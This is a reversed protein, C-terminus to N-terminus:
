LKKLVSLIEEAIEAPTKNTTIIVVDAWEQYVKQRAAFRTELQNALPRATQQSLELRKIITEFPTELFIIPSFKKLYSLNETREVVGGGTAVIETKPLQKLLESEKKRFAEEGFQDFFQNIQGYNECFLADLDCFNSGMQTALIQGVTTKGSAMFGILIM